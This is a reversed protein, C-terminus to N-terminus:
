KDQHVISRTWRMNNPNVYKSDSSASWHNLLEFSEIAIQEIAIKKKNWTRCSFVVQIKQLYDVPMSVYYDITVPERSIRESVKGDRGDM